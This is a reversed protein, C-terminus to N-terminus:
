NRELRIGLGRLGPVNDISLLLEWKGFAVPVLDKRYLVEYDKSPLAKDDYAGKPIYVSEEYQRGSPSVLQVKVPIDGIADFAKGTIDLRTYFYIDYESLSDTMDLTFRYRGLSDTDSAKVFSEYSSPASCSAVAVVLAALWLAIRSPSPM